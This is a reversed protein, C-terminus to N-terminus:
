HVNPLIHIFNSLITYIGLVAIIIGAVHNITLMHRPRFRHRFLNLLFTLAFWWVAAGGFFGAITLLGGFLTGFDASGLSTSVKFMTFFIMIYPVVYIFNTLTIGFMSAFDRWLTTKGVRNRRIQTVPNQLFIYVGVIVVIIGSVVSLLLRNSEISRQLITSFLMAFVAMLTDACAVGLGSAFGSRRNKSLTRQICLVAVPGVTISAAVGVGFGQLLLYIVNTIQNLGM